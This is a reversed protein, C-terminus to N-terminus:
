DAHGRAGVGKEFRQHRESDARAVLDHDRCEGEEGGSPDDGPEPRGRDEHVDVWHIEADIRLLDGFRMPGAVRATTGTWRKPWDASM